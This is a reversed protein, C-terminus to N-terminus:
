WTIREIQSFELQGGDAFQIHGSAPQTFDIAQSSHVSQVDPDLVLTWNGTAPASTLRIEDTWAGTGGDITDHGGGMAITFVDAGAGGRMWEDGASGIFADHGTTGNLVQDAGDGIIQSPEINLTVSQTGAAAGSSDRLTVGISRSGAALGASNTTEVAMGELVEAYTSASASGSLTVQRSAGYSVEIGTSGLMSRGGVIQVPHDAFALRDTAAGGTLSITAGGMMPSDVDTITADHIIDASAQGTAAGPSAVLQLRPADNVAAVSVNFPQQTTTTSDGDQVTASLTLSVTGNWDAPPRLRLGSLEAPLLTVSGDPQTTGATLSFGAPLGSLVLGTITESGDTDRLGATLSLAVTQDETGFAAPTTLLAADAVPRVTVPLVASSSAEAGTAGERSFATVTLAIAGAFNAPPTLSVSAAEAPTLTWTGNSARIGASLTAGTPMGSVTFRAISESGDADVLTASIPLRLATDETGILGTFAIAPADAVPDVTVAMQLNTASRSGDSEVATVAFDLRMTGAYNPLPTVTLGALNAGPISWSGDGNLTGASFRAGAPVGTVMVVLSESGDTDTLRAVIDIAIPQDEAGRATTAADALPADAVGAVAVRFAVQTSAVEATSREMAHATMTLAMSGSWDLPPTLTLGGIQPPTLTWSGDGNNIGASLRAGDPLGAIVISM